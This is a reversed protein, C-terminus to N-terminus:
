TKVTGILLYSQLHLHLHFFIIAVFLTFSKFHKIFTKYFVTSICFFDFRLHVQLGQVGAAAGASASSAARSVPRSMKVKKKEQKYKEEREGTTSRRM